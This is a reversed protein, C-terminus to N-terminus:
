HSVISTLNLLSKTATTTWGMSGCSSVQVLLTNHHRSFGGPSAGAGTVYFGAGALGVSYLLYKGIRDIGLRGGTRSQLM